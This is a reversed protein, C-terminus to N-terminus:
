GWLPRAAKMEESLTMMQEEGGESVFKTAIGRMQDISPPTMGTSEKNEIWTLTYSIGNACYTYTEYADGALYAGPGEPDYTNIPSSYTGSALKICEPEASHGYNIEIGVFNLENGPETYRCSYKVYHEGDYIPLALEADDFHHIGKIDNAISLNLCKKNFYSHKEIPTLGSFDSINEVLVGTTPAPDPPETTAQESVTGPATVGAPATPDDPSACSTLAILLM